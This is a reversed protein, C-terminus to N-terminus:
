TAAFLELGSYASHEDAEANVKSSLVPKQDGRFFYIQRSLYFAEKGKQRAENNWSQWKTLSVVRLGSPNSTAKPDM